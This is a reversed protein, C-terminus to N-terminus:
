VIQVFGLRPALATLNPAVAAVLKLTSDAVKILATEGAPVPVTSTLTVVAPPVLAALSASRKWYTGAPGGGVTFFIAGLFPEALPPVETVRVPAPKTPTVPTLNPEIAAVPKLTFEALEIVATEGPPVFFLTTSTVTVVGLPVLAVEL